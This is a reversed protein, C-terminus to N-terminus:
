QIGVAVRSAPVTIGSQLGSTLSSPLSAVGSGLPLRLIRCWFTGVGGLQLSTAAATGEAEPM